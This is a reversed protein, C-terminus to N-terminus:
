RPRFARRRSAQFRVRGRPRRIKFAVSRARISSLQQREESNHIDCQAASSRGRLRARGRDGQIRVLEIEKRSYVTWAIDDIRVSLLQGSHEDVDRVYRRDCGRAGRADHRTSSSRSAHRRAVSRAMTRSTPSAVVKGDKVIPNGSQDCEIPLAGAAEPAIYFSNPSNGLRAIGIAPHIRFIDAM